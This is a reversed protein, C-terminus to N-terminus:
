LIISEQNILQVSFFLKSGVSYIDCIWRLLKRLKRKRSFSSEQSFSSSDGRIRSFWLEAFCFWHAFSFVIETFIHAISFHDVVILCLLFWSFGKSDGIFFFFFFSPSRYLFVNLPLSYWSPVIAWKGKELIGAMNKFSNKLYYCYFFKWM